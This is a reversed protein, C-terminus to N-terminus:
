EEAAPDASVTVIKFDYGGCLAFCDAIGETLYLTGGDTLIACDFGGNERCFAPARDAGMVFLATSLADAAVGEDAVVTVSLVGNDVPKATAPDLIHVYRVGDREFYREYGGSTAVVGQSLSLTGFYSAPADPDAIGVTFPSADPKQGYLLITGGLNLVAGAAGSEDLIRKAEDALYGKAVAGLDLMMGAPLTVADAELKVATYDIHACLDALVADDPVAYDGTTFGWALVAPYVTPDLAGDLEECLALTRRLLAATDASLVAAGDRNLAAIESHEDVASLRGDLELAHDRIRACSDAGDWVTLSMMTDMATFSLTAASQASCAPLLGILLIMMGCLLRRLVTKKMGSHYCM